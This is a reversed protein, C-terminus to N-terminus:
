GKLILGKNQRKLVEVSEDPNWSRSLGNALPRAYMAKQIANGGRSDDVPRALVLMEIELRDNPIIVPLAKNDNGEMGCSLCYFFPDDPDIYEAGGCLPCDALWRGFDIRARIAQGGIEGLWPKSIGGRSVATLSMYKVWDRVTFYGDRTAIDRATIIKSM